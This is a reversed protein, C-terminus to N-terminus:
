TLIFIFNFNFCVGWGHTDEVLGTPIGNNYIGIERGAEDWTASVLVTGTPLVYFGSVNYNVWHGTTGAFTNAVWTYVAATFLYFYILLYIIISPSTFFNFYYYFL